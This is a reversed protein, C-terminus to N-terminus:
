CDKNQVSVRSGGPSERPTKMLSRLVRRARGALYVSGTVCIGTDLQQHERYALELARDPDDAATVRAQPWHQGLVEALLTCPMSRSPDARTTIVRNVMSMLPAFVTDIEKAGSLSLVALFSTDFGALVQTLGTMSATTHAADVIIPPDARLIEARAPLRTSPLTETAAAFIKKEPSLQSQLLCEVALAANLVIFPAPQPLIVKLEGSKSEFHLACHTADVRRAEARFDRGIRAVPAGAAKARELM